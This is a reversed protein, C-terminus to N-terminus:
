LFDKELLVKSIFQGNLTYNIFTRHNLQQRKQLFFLM